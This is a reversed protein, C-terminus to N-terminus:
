PDGLPAMALSVIHRKGGVQPRDQYRRALAALDRQLAKADEESLAAMFITDWVAPVGPKLLHRFFARPDAPDPAPVIDRKVSGDERRYASVGWETDGPQAARWALGIHTELLQRAERRIQPGLRELTEVSTLRFPAFFGDAVAAYTRVARGPRMERQIEHLLGLQELRRVQYLMGSVSVGLERAVESVTRECGIFPSFYRLKQGDTIVRVAQSDELTLWIPGSAEADM